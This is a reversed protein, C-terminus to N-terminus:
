AALMKYETDVARARIDAFSVPRLMNGNEFVPQMLDIGPDELRVTKLKGDELITKLRGRKSAKGTDLPDKFVDHWINDVLKAAAKIAFRQTDRNLKQLLGGGMGFCAINSAAYGADRLAVLIKEIGDIDIGDGWLLRVKPHIVRYGLHNVTGGFAEWLRDALNVMELEPTPHQPTTSDPRLVTVGDRELVLEKLEQGIIVSVFNYPDFSDIVMSLIGRPHALLLRRVLRLEGARGDQTMVSHETAPVSYGLGKWPAGYMKHAYELGALTDTGHFNVLHAAGGIAAAEHCTAGRYGFDQLMFTLADDAGTTQLLYKSCVQKVAYSKAAVTIPYWTHLQTGEILNTLWPFEHDTGHLDYLMVGPPTLTGEPLARIRIPLTGDHKHYLNTWGAKNFVTDSGFHEAAAEAAEYVDDLNFVSGAFHEQLVGHIGFLPAVPFQSGKRMEGYSYLVQLDNNYQSWHTWKYSDTKFLFNPKYFRM